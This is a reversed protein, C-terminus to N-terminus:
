NSWPAKGFNFETRKAEGYLLVRVGATPLGGTPTKKQHSETPLEQRAQSVNEWLSMAVNTRRPQDARGPSERRQNQESQKGMCYLELAARQCAGQQCARQQVPARLLRQRVRAWL